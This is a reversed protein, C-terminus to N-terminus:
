REGESEAWSEAREGQKNQRSCGRAGGAGAEGALGGAREWRHCWTAGVGLGAPKEREREGRRRAAEDGNGRGGGDGAGRRQEWGPAPVQRKDSDGGDPSVGQWSSTGAPAGGAPADEGDRRPRPHRPVSLPWPAGCAARTRQRHPHPFGSVCVGSRTPPVWPSRRLPSLLPARCM